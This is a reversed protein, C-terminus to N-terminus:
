GGKANMGERRGLWRAIGLVFNFRPVRQLYRRYPEGLRALCFREEQVAQLYFCVGAIAALLLVVAHQSLLAFGGAFFMYGLYQPHRTIAYLGRDVLTRTQLYSQGKRTRGHRALLIFPPFVFFPALVLSCIGAWRLYSSDGREVFQAALILAVTALSGTWACHGPPQPESDKGALGEPEARPTVKDSAAKEQDMMEEEHGTAVLFVNTLSTVDQTSVGPRVSWTERHTVSEGPALTTRPV